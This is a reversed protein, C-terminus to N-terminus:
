KLTKLKDPQFGAFPEVGEAVVVPMASLRLDEKIYQIANKKVVEGAIEVEIEDVEDVNIAEFEIEEGQLVTKTMNCQMCNNKTYVVVKAM